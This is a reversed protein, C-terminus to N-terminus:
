DKTHIRDLTISHSSGLSALSPLLLFSPISSVSTFSSTFTCVVTRVYDSLFFSFQKKFSCPDFTQGEPPRYAGYWWSDDRFVNVLHINEWIHKRKRKRMIIHTCSHKRKRESSNMCLMKRQPEFTVNKWQFRKLVWIQKVCRPVVAAVCMHMHTCTCFTFYLLRVRVDGWWFPGRALKWMHRSM